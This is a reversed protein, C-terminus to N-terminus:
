LFLDDDDDDDDDDDLTRNLISWNAPQQLHAVEIAAQFKVYVYSLKIYNTLM